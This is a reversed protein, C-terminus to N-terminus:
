RTTPARIGAQRFQFPRGGGQRVQFQVAIHLLHRRQDAPAVSGHRCRATGQILQTGAAGGRHGVYQRVVLQGTGRGKGAPTQHEIGPIAAPIFPEIGPRSCVSRVSQSSAGGGPQWPMGGHAMGDIAAASVAQGGRQQLSRSHEKRALFSGFSSEFLFRGLTKLVRPRNKDPTEETGEQLSPVCGGDPRYRTSSPNAATLPAPTKWLPLPLVRCRTRTFFAQHSTIVVNPFSLLVPVVENQLVDDSFDEFVQGDEDEYVDLGVGAFKRNRLAEIM